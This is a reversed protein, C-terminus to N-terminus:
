KKALGYFAWFPGPCTSSSVRFSSTDAGDFTGGAIDIHEGIHLDYDKQNGTIVGQTIHLKNGELNVSFDSPFVLLYSIGDDGNVRLCQNVLVLKGQLEAQLYEYVAQTSNTPYLTQHNTGSPIDCGTFFLLSLLLLFKPM